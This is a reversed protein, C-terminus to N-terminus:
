TGQLCKILAFNSSMQAIDTHGDTRGDTSIVIAGSRLFSGVEFKAFLGTPIPFPKYRYIM